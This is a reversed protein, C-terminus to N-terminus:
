LGQLQRDILVVPHVVEIDPNNEKLGASFHLACGINSTVLIDIPHEAINKLKDDRLSNAMRPHTLVYSGAAGCCQENGPLATLNIDPIRRLLEYPKDHQHLVRRLSCPDHVAVTKKLPKLSVNQPWTIRSLFTNIDTVKEFFTNSHNKTQSTLDSTQPSEALSVGCGSATTIIADIKLQSFTKINRFTLDSVQAQAGNHQHLAGCCVQEAPVHVGYGTRTLVNITAQLTEQDLTRAICGTFLAVDGQHTNDPKYYSQWNTKAPIAPLTKNLMALRSKNALLSHSMLWQFGTHQYWRLLSFLVSLLAPSKIAALGAKKLVRSSLRGNYNAEILSDASDIIAGFPVDSPCIDECARCKLCNDLHAKFKPTIALQGALFGQVLSIRGRPSEGEDLTKLYTPCVQSCMGCKVCRDTFQELKSDTILITVDTTLKFNCTNFGKKVVATV